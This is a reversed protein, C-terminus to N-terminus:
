PVLTVPLLKRQYARVVVGDSRKIVPAMEAAIVDQTRKLGSGLNYTMPFAKFRVGRFGQGHLRKLEATGTSAPALAVGRYIKNAALLDAAAANDFGHAASQVVVGRAIGMKAHM